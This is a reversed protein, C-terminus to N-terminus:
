TRTSQRALATLSLSWARREPVTAPPLMKATTPQRDSGRVPRSPRQARRDATGLQVAYVVLPRQRIARDPSRRCARQVLPSAGNHM